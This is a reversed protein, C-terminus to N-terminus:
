HSVNKRVYMSAAEPTENGIYVLKGDRIGINAEILQNKEYDPYKGATILIDLM